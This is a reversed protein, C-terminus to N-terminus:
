GTGQEEAGRLALPLLWARGIRGVDVSEVHHHSACRGVDGWVRVLDARRADMRPM